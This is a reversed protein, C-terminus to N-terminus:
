KFTKTDNRKNSFYALRTQLDFYYQFSIIFRIKQALFNLHYERIYIKDLFYTRMGVGGFVQLTISIHIFPLALYLDPSFAM